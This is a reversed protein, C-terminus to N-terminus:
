EDYNYFVRETVERCHRMATMLDNEFEQGRHAGRRMCASIGGLSYTDDPLVDARDARGQWLFNANRADTTFKWATSLSEADEATLLGAERLVTLAEITSVTRLKENHGAHRLQLSQITWEVDSLGGKGLKLHRERRVGRPLREAEMRAKLKRIEQIQRPELPHTPYRLPDVVEELFRRGLDQDGAACRARLLAQHEWTSAWHGYYERYSDYSRLLPGNKGEPRLDFDLDISPETSVPGGLIARVDDLVDRAFAAARAEESGPTKEFMVMIDADSSFNVERGGYRGMAIIALRAPAEGDESGARKQVGWRLAVDFMADYVDTMARLAQSSKTVGNIWALGIREIEHRRLARVSTAFEPLSEAFRRLSLNAQIDLSERSRPALREDDGLWTVSEVSKTLADALYRSNSVVRCLRRGASLSDRLFGLYESDQGFTEELKRLTLLGMDPNQGEGLWQLMAPLIVRNIKASRSIGETLHGVHRIAADPDEFGISAFREVAASGTLAIADASLQAIQPLMPRYYIDLHLRRVERRTADFREVLADPLLGFVRSLRRLEPNSSLEGDHIVRNSDLGGASADGLDPFLHTRRLSWMQARHELVREFRYDNGLKTAQPRSVYGGESLALLARLTGAAHLTDDTRGHVLQLMQVTFEVDRLGGRGLKIERDRLPMPILKEVRKRMQQCDFVFNERTSAQWVFGAAMREYRAGIERDGAVCRAKLLAQFEWNKAWSKYYEEHSKLRRVLQGDKGEPRLAGDIEWLPPEAVGPLVNSCVNQLAVGLKTGIKLLSQLPVAPEVAHSQATSNHEVGSSDAVINPEVVYILDVDSVYNLEHAGLKGMGIVSFRCKQSDPVSKYAIALAADLAAQALDSLADSIRPQVTVPESTVDWAMIAALQRYYERRLRTAADDTSLASVWVSAVLPQGDEAVSVEEASVANMLAERRRRADWARSAFDDDNVVAHVMPHRTMMMRGMVESSGLLTMLRAFADHYPSILARLEAADADQAADRTLSEALEVYATLATDPDPVNQLAGLVIDCIEPRERHRMDGRTDASPPEPAASGFLREVDRLRAQAGTVDFIGARILGRTVDNRSDEGM